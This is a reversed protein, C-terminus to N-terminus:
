GRLDVTMNNLTVTSPIYQKCYVKGNCHLYVDQKVDRLVKKLATMEQKLAQIESQRVGWSDQVGVGTAVGVGITAATDLPATEVSAAQRRQLLSGLCSLDVWGM